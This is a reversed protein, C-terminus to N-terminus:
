PNGSLFAGGGCEDAVKRVKYDAAAQYQGCRDDIVGLLGPRHCKPSKDAASQYQGYEATEEIGDIQQGGKCLKVTHWQFRQDGGAGGLGLLYIHEGLKERLFAKAKGWYDSSIFSRHEVVQAPCAINAVIGTLKKNTDIM